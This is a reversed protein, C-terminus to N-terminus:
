GIALAPASSSLPLYRAGPPLQLRCDQVTWCRLDPLPPPCVPPGKSHCPAHRSGAPGPFPTSDEQSASSTTLRPPGPCCFGTPALVEPRLHRRRLRPAACLPPIGRRRAPDDVSPTLAPGTRSCPLTPRLGPPGASPETGLQSTGAAQLRVTPFGSTRFHTWRLSAQETPSLGVPTVILLGTAQIAPLLSVSNRFGISM